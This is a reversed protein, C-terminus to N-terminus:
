TKEYASVMSKPEGVDEVSADAMTAPERKEVRRKWKKKREPM